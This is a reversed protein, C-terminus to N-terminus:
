RMVDAQQPSANASDTSRGEIVRARLQRHVSHSPDVWDHLMRAEEEGLVDEDVVTAATNGGREPRSPVKLLHLLLRFCRRWRRDLGTCRDLIMLRYADLWDGQQEKGAEGVGWM